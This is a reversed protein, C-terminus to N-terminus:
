IASRLRAQQRASRSPVAMRWESLVEQLADVKKRNLGCSEFLHLTEHGFFFEVAVLRMAVNARNAV